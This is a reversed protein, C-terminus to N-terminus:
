EKDYSRKLLSVGEDITVQSSWDLVKKAKSSDLSLEMLSNSEDFPVKKESINPFEKRFVEVLENLSHSEGTSINLIENKGSYEIASVIARVADDLFLFDRRQEGSGHIIVEGKKSISDLFNYVVGKMNGPGYINPFRLILHSIGSFRIYTEAFMKSLGYLTSPLLPDNESSIAHTPEGYVAGTSSFIIREVGCAICSDVVNRTGSVNVEILQDYDDSFVGALHVVVDCGKFFGELETRNRIDGTFDRFSYGEDKVSDIFSKGLFGSAGTIGIKM